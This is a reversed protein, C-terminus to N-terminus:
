PAAISGGRTAPASSTTSKLRNIDVGVSRSLESAANHYQLLAQIYGSRSKAFAGLAETIERTEVLGSTYSIMVKSLWQNAAKRSKDLIAVTRQAAFSERYHQEVQLSIGLHALREQSQFENFEAEVKRTRAIQVPFDLNIRVGLLLGGDLFNFPDYAFPSFQDTANSTYAGRFFGMLFFDPTWARRQVELLSRKADLAHQLLQLEPRHRKSHEQYEKLSLLKTAPEPLEEAQLQLTESNSIGTLRALASRALERGTEAKIREASLEAAYVQIKLQDTKEKVRKKAQEIYEEMDDILTLGDNAALLGYYAKKLLLALKDREVEVNAQGIRVGSDAAKQYLSIKGFTYVPWIMSLEFRTMVGYQDFWGYSQPIPTDSNVANGRAPPTPAILGIVQMQPWWGAWLAEDKQAKMAELRAQAGAIMPNNRYALILLQELTYKTPQPKTTQCPWTPSCGMTPLWRLRRKSPSPRQPTPSRKRLISARWRKTKVTTKTESTQQAHLRHSSFSGFLLVSLFLSLSRMRGDTRALHRTTLHAHPRTSPM